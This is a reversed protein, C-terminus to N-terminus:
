RVSGSRDVDTYIVIFGNGDTVCVANTVEIPGTATMTTYTGSFLAVFLPEASGELEPAMKMAPLREWIQRAEPVEFTTDVQNGFADAGCASLRTDAATVVAVSFMLLLVGIFAALVRHTARM